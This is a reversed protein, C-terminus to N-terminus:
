RPNRDLTFKPNRAIDQAISIVRAREEPDSTAIAKKVIDRMIQYRKINDAKEAQAVSIAEMPEGFARALPFYLARPNLPKGDPGKFVKAGVGIDEFGLSVMLDNLISFQPILELITEALPFQPSTKKATNSDKDWHYTQGNYLRIDESELPAPNDFQDNGGMLKHTVTILPSNYPGMLKPVPIGGVVRFGFNDFVNFGNLKAWVAKGDHTWGVNVRGKLYDPLNDDDISDMAAMGARHLSLSAGPRLFPLQLALLNMTKAFTWFPVLKRIYRKELPTLKGYGGYFKELNSIASEVPESLVQSEKLKSQMEKLNDVERRLAKQIAFQGGPRGSGANSDIQMQLDRIKQAQGTMGPELEMKLKRADIALQEVSKAADLIEQLRQGGFEAAFKQLTEGRELAKKLEPIFAAKKHVTDTFNSIRDLQRNGWRFPKGLGLGESVAGADMSMGMREVEAPLNEAAARSLPMPAGRHLTSLVANGLLNNVYFRPSLKLVFLRWINEVSSYTKSLWGHPQIEQQIARELDEPIAVMKADHMEDLFSASLEDLEHAAGNLIGPLDAGAESARLLIKNQALELHPLYKELMMPMVKFTKGYKLSLAALDADSNIVHGYKEALLNIKRVSAMTRSMYERARIQMVVPREEAQLFSEVSARGLRGIKGLKPNIQPRFVESLMEAPMALVKASWPRFLTDLEAGNALKTGSLHAEARELEQPSLDSNLKKLQEPTIETAGSAKLEELRYRLGIKHQRSRKFTELVSTDGTRVGHSIMRDEFDKVQRSHERLMDYVDPPLSTDQYSKWNDLVDYLESHLEKPVSEFLSKSLDNQALNAEELDIKGFERYLERVEPTFGIAKEIHSIVPLREAISVAKGAMNFPLNAVLNLKASAGAFSKAASTAGAMKAAKGAAGAGMSALTTADLLALFTHDRVGRWASEWTINDDDGRYNSSLLKWLDSTVRETSELAYQPRSIVGSIWDSVHKPSHFMWSGVKGILTPLNTFISVFDHAQTKAWDGIPDLMGQAEPKPQPAQPGPFPMPFVPRPMQGPGASQGQQGSLGRSGSGVTTLDPFVPNQPMFQEVPKVGPLGQAM